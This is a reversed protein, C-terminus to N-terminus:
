AEIANFLRGFEDQSCISYFMIEKCEVVPVGLLTDPIDNDKKVRPNIGIVLVDNDGRAKRMDKEKIIDSMILRKVNDM